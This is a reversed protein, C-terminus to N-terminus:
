TWGRARYAAVLSAILAVLAPTDGVAALTAPDSASVGFVFTRIVRASVLAAITGAAIGVLVPPM